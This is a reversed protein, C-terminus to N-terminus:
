GNAAMSLFTTMFLTTLVKANQWFNTKRNKKKKSM